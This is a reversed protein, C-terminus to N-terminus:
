NIKITSLIRGEYNVTGIHTLGITIDAYIKGGCTTWRDCFAWDESLYKGNKIYCDFYAYLNPIKQAGIHIDDIYAWEPHEKQFTEFVKRKIMMFGTAVHKVEMLGDVVNENESYNLNYNVLNHRIMEEDSFDFKDPVYKGLNDLPIDIEGVTFAEIPATSDPVTMEILNKNLLATPVNSGFRIRILNSNASLGNSTNALISQITTSAPTVSPAIYVNKKILQLKVNDATATPPTAFTLM